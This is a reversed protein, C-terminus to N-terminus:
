WKLEKAKFVPGDKCVRKAGNVTDITCGVCAGIGCCMRAEMSFQADTEAKQAIAKLMPFPGCSYIQTYASANMADTVLGKEGASGDVTYLVTDVGLAKLEDYYFVEDSSAFGMVVKVNKGQKKLTKALFFVPTLGTGGSILLPLEGASEMDYGNGLQTLVDAEAGSRVCTMAKTGEGSAHYVVTLENNEADCVSFPRRLFFGDVKIEVFQGPVIGETNGYLKLEYRDKAIEKNSIVKFIEQRM